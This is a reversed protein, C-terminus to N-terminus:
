IVQEVEFDIFEIFDEGVKIFDMELPQLHQPSFVFLFHKHFLFIHIGGGNLVLVQGEDIM